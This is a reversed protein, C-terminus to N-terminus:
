LESRVLYEEYYTDFINKYRNLYYNYKHGKLIMDEAWIVWYFYSVVVCKIIHFVEDETPKRDFYYILKSEIESIDCESRTCLKSLDYGIDTDGAYEWDILYLKENEDLLLNDEWIDNHSLQTGWNDNEIEKSVCIIENFLSNYKLYLDNDIHKINELIHQSKEIYDFKVGCCYKNENLKRLHKSLINLHRDNKFNFPINSEIFKSIKWGEIPDEYIFSDDINISSVFNEISSELKRNIDIPIGYGPIRYIYKNGNVTFSFSNNTLGKQVVELNDIDAINCNLVKCINKAFNYDGKVLYDSYYEKLEDVTDFELIYNSPVRKEYLHLEDVHESYVREWYYDDTNPKGYFEELIIKFKNSFDTDFFQYGLMCWKHDAPRQTDIILGNHDVIVGREGEAYDDIFQTTTYAHEEYTQFEGDPYYNDACLIYSNKLYSRAAYLSSHTNKKKYDKNYVLKVFDYKETLYEFKEHMNGVVVIVENINAEKLQRIQREILREGNAVALGKPREFSLPAFRSSMGAALIIANDVKIKEM